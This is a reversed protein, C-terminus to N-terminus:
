GRGVFPMKTAVITMTAVNAELLHGAVYGLAWAVDEVDV